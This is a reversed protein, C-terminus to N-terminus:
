LLLSSAQFKPNLFFLSQVIGTVFVFASILQAAGKNRRHLNNTKKHPPKFKLRRVEKQSKVPQNTYQSLVSNQSYEFLSHSSFTLMHKAM